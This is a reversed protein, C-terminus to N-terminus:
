NHTIDSWYKINGTHWLLDDTRNDDRRIRIQENSDNKVYKFMQQKHLISPKNDYTVQQCEQARCIIIIIIANIIIIIYYSPLVSLCAMETNITLQNVDNLFM